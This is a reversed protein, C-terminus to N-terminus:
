LSCQGKVTTQKWREMSWVSLLNEVRVTWSKINTLATLMFVAATLILHLATLYTSYQPTQATVDVHHKTSSVFPPERHLSENRFLLAFHQLFTLSVKHGSSNSLSLFVDEAVLVHMWHDIGKVVFASSESSEAPIELWSILQESAFSEVVRTWLSWLPSPVRRSSKEVSSNNLPFFFM